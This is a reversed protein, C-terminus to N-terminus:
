ISRGNVKIIKAYVLQDFNESVDFTLAADVFDGYSIEVLASNDTLICLFRNGILNFNEDVQEMIVKRRLQKCDESKPNPSLYKSTVDEIKFSKNDM